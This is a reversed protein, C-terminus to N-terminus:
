FKDCEFLTKCDFAAGSYKDIFVISWYQIVFKIKLHQTQSYYKMQIQYLVLSNILMFILIFM